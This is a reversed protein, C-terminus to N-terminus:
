YANFLQTIITKLDKTDEFEQVFIVNNWSPATNDIILVKILGDVHLVVAPSGKLHERLKIVKDTNTM